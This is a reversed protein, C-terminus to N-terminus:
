KKEEPIFIQFVADHHFQVLDGKALGHEAMMLLIADVTGIILQDKTETVEVWFDEGCICIRVSNGPVIERLAEKGPVSKVRRPVM